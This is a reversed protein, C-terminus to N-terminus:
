HCPLVTKVTTKSEDWFAVSSTRGDPFVFNETRGSSTVWLALSMGRRVDAAQFATTEREFLVYRDRAVSARPMCEGEQNWLRVVQGTSSRLEVTLDAPCTAQTELKVKVRDVTQSTPQFNGFSGGYNLLNSDVASGGISLTFSDNHDTNQFSTDDCGGSPGSPSGSSSFLGGCASLVLVLSMPAVMQQLRWLDPKQITM